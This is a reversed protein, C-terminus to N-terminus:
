TFEISSIYLVLVKNQIAIQKKIGNLSYKHMKESHNRAVKDLVKLVISFYIYCKKPRKICWKSIPKSYLFTLGVGHLPKCM